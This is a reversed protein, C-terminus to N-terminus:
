EGVHRSWNWGRKKDRKRWRGRELLREHRLQGIDDVLATDDKNYIKTDIFWACRRLMWCNFFFAALKLSQIEWFGDQRNWQIVNWELMFNILLSDDNTSFISILLLRIPTGACRTGKYHTVFNQKVQGPYDIISLQRAWWRVLICSRYIMESEHWTLGLVIVSMGRNVVTFLIKKLAIWQASRFRYSQSSSHINRCCNLPYRLFGFQVLNKENWM